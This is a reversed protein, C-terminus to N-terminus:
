MVATSGWRQRATMCELAGVRLEQGKSTPLLRASRGDLASQGSVWVKRLGWWTTQDTSETHEGELHV